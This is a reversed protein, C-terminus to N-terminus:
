NSRDAALTTRQMQIQSEIDGALIACAESIILEVIDEKFELPVEVTSTALTYPNSSGSVQMKAPLRYYTLSISSATFDGKWVKAKNGALTSFTETWDWSPKREPDRLLDTVNVEEALWVKFPQPKSCCESIARMDIRKYALYDVPLSTEYFEERDIFPAPVTSLLVQLDDVRRRSQEDGQRQPNLPTLQRRVWEVQAKNVAEVIQWTELNDFDLSDLKNVRQKVKLILTANLM